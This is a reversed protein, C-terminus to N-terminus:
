KVGAFPKSAKRSRDPQRKIYNKFRLSGNWRMGMWNARPSNDDNQLWEDTPYEMGTMKKFQPKIIKGFFQEHNMCIGDHRSQEFMQMYLDYDGKVVYWAMAYYHAATIEGPDIRVPNSKVKNKQIQQEARIDGIIDTIQDTKPLKGYIKTKRMRQFVTWLIDEHARIDSLIYVRQSDNYKHDFYKEIETIFLEPKMSQYHHAGNEQNQM